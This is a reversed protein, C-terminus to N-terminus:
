QPVVVGLHGLEVLVTLQALEVAVLSQKSLRVVLRPRILAPLSSTIRPIFPENVFRLVLAVLNVMTATQLKVPPGPLGAKSMAGLVALLFPARSRAPVKGSGPLVLVTRGM